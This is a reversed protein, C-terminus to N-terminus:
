GSELGVVCISRASRNALNFSLEYIGVPRYFRQVESPEITVASAWEKREGLLASGAVVLLGLMVAMCSRSSMSTM